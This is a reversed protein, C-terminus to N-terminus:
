YRDLTTAGVEVLKQYGRSFVEFFADRDDAFRVVHERLGKDVVLNVDTPIFAVEGLEVERDYWRLLKKYYTNSFHDPGEAVFPLLVPANELCERTLDRLCGKPMGLLTVHRGLDHAGSLAVWEEETLGLSAFYLRLGDSDLGPSPLTTGVESRDTESRLRVRRNRPDPGSADVRGLRIPIRPGGAAEVAAAGSLAVADGFSLPYSFTGAVSAEYIVDTIASLPRSLGRNEPWDLEYRVSGNPGGTFGRGGRFYLVDERTAADHFALRLLPGALTPDSRVASTAAERVLRSTLSLSARIEEDAFASSSELRNNQVNSAYHLIDPPTPIIASLTSSLFAARTLIM